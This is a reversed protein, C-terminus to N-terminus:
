GGRREALLSLALVADLHQLIVDQTAGAPTYGVVGKALEYVATHLKTMMDAHIQDVAKTPPQSFRVYLDDATPKSYQLPPAVFPYGPRM